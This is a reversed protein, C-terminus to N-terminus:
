VKGDWRSPPVQRKGLENIISEVLEKPSSNFFIKARSKKTIKETLRQLEDAIGGTGTLVGIVKGMDYLHTFEDMTGWRGSVIIGGDCNAISIVNRYKKCVDINDSFKFNKPMYYIKKYISIDINPTFKKQQEFNIVPSYGYIKSGKRFAERAIENPIGDCAGTVLTIKNEGLVQGLERAKLSAKKEDVASGFVGIKYKTM